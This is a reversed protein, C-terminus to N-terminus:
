LAKTEPIEQSYTIKIISIILIGTTLFKLIEKMIVDKVNVYDEKCEKSKM